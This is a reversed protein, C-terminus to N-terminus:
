PQELRREFVEAAAAALIPKLEDVTITRGLCASVSTM